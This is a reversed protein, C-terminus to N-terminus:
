YSGKYQWANSAWRYFQRDTNPSHSETYGFPAIFGTEFDEVQDLQEYLNEWTVGEDAIAEVSQHLLNIGIWAGVGYPSVIADPDQEKLATTYEKMAPRNLRIDYPTNAWVPLKAMFEHDINSTVQTGMISEGAVVPVEWSQGRMSGICDVYQAEGVFLVLVDADANRAGLVLSECDAVGTADDTYVLESGREEVASKLEDFWVDAFALGRLYLVSIREYSKEDVLFRAMAKGWDAPDTNVNYTNAAGHEDPHVGDPAIVPVGSQELYDQVAPYSLVFMPGVLAFVEDEEVLKRVCAVTRAPDQGAGDDCHVLEVQRGAFGGDDNAGALYARISNPVFSHDVAGTGAVTGIRITEDTVGQGGAGSAAGADDSSADSTCSALGFAVTVAAVALVRSGCRRLRAVQQRVVSVAGM